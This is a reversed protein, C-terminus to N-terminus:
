SARVVVLGVAWQVDQLGLSCTLCRLPSLRICYPKFGLASYLFLYKGGSPWSRLHPSDKLKFPATIANPVCVYQPVQRKSTSIM